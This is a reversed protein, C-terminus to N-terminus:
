TIGREHPLTSYAYPNPSLFARLSAIAVRVPKGGDEPQVKCDERTVTLVRGVVHPKYGPATEVRLGVEVDIMRGVRDELRLREMLAPSPEPGESTTELDGIGPPRM